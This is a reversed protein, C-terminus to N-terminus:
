DNWNAAVIALIGFFAGVGSAIGIAIAKATSTGGTTELTVRVISGIPIEAPPEAVRTNRQVTVAQGTSKMLTGHVTHGDTREVRVRSGAPIRSVYDAMVAPDVASPQAPQAVRSGGASACGTALLAASLVTALMQRVM